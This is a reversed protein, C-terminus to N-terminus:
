KHINDVFCEKGLCSKDYGDASKWMKVVLIIQVTVIVLNSLDLLGHYSVISWWHEKFEYHHYKRAFYLYSLFIVGTVLLLLVRFGIEFFFYYCTFKLNYKINLLFNDPFIIYFREYSAVVMLTLSLISVGAVSFM